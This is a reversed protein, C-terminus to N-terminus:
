EKWWCSTLTVSWLNYTFSVLWPCQGVLVLGKVWTFLTSMWCLRFNYNARSQPPLQVLIKLLLKKKGIFQDNKVETSSGRTATGQTNELDVQRWHWHNTATGGPDALTFPQHGKAKAKLVGQSSVRWDSKKWSNRMSRYLSSNRRNMLQLSHRLSLQTNQLTSYAM